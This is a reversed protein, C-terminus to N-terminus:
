NEQAPITDGTGTGTGKANKLEKFEKQLTAIEVRLAKKAELNSATNQKIIEYDNRLSQYEQKKQRIQSRLTDIHEM